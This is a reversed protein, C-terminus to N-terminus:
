TTVGLLNCEADLVLWINIGDRFYTEPMRLPWTLVPQNSITELNTWSPHGMNLNTGMKKETFVKCAIQLNSKLMAGSLHIGRFNIDDLPENGIDPERELILKMKYADDLNRIEALPRWTLFAKRSIGIIEHRGNIILRRISKKGAKAKNSIIKYHHPRLKCIQIGQPGPKISLALIGADLNIIDSPYYSLVNKRNTAKYFKKINSKVFEDVVNKLYIENEFKYGYIPLYKWQVNYIELEYAKELDEAEMLHLCPEPGTPKKQILGILQCSSDFVVRNLGYDELTFTLLNYFVGRLINESRFVPWTFFVVGILDFLESESFSAPFLSAPSAVEMQNCGLKVAKQAQVMSIFERGCKFVETHSKRPAPKAFCSSSLALISLVTWAIM